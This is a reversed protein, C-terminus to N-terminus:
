IPPASHDNLLEHNPGKVVKLLDRDATAGNEKFIEESISPSSCAVRKGHTTRTTELLIKGSPRPRDHNRRGVLLFKSFHNVSLSDIGEIAKSPTLKVDLTKTKRKPTCRLPENACRAMSLMTKRTKLATCGTACSCRIQAAAVLCFIFIPAM